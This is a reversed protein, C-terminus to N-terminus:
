TTFTWVYPVGELFTDGSALSGFLSASASASGALDLAGLLVMLDGESVSAVVSATGAVEVLVTPVLDGSYTWALTAEDEADVIGNNPPPIIWYALHMGATRKKPYTDVAM